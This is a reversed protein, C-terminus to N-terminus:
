RHVLMRHGESTTEAIDSSRAGHQRIRFGYGEERRGGAGAGLAAARRTGAGAGARGVVGGGGLCRDDAAEGRFPM